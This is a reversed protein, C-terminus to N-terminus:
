DESVFPLLPWLLGNFLSNIMIGFVGDEPYDRANAAAACITTHLAPILYGGLIFACIETM